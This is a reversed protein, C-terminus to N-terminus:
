EDDLIMAAYAHALDQYSRQSGDQERQKKLQCERPHHRVWAMHHICWHYTKGKIVKTQPDTDKPPIKRWKDEPKKSKTKSVESRLSNQKRSGRPNQRPLTKDSLKLKSKKLLNKFETLETQLAIYTKDDPSELKWKGESKLAQFRNMADAMLSDVTVDSGEEYNEKKRLIYDAFIKDPVINYAKFLNVLIDDSREGRCQLQKRQEKVYLNFIEIDYNLASIQSDLNSLNTRIHTITARTDINVADVLYKFLCPGDPNGNITFKDSETLVKLYAEETLSSMICYYMMVANQAARTQQGIWAQTAQETVDQLKMRGFENLLHHATVIGADTVPINLINANPHGWGMEIARDSLKEIFTTLSAAEGNFKISLPETGRQYNMVGAKTSYDLPNAIDNVGPTLSFVTPRAVGVVGDPPPPQQLAPQMQAPQNQDPARIAPVPPEPDGPPPVPRAIRAQPDVPAARDPIPNARTSSRTRNTAM